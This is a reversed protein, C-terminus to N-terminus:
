KKGNAKAIQERIIDHVDPPEWGEPKKVKGNADHGDKAMNATHVADWVPGPDIGFTHLTGLIVYILDVAGDAIGALDFEHIADLMEKAEERILQIRLQAEKDSPYQPYTRVPFGFKEQFEKVDGHWDTM